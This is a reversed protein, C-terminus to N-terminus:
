WSLFNNGEFFFLEKWRGLRSFGIYLRSDLITLIIAEELIGNSTNFLKYSGYKCICM